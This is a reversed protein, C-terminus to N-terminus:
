ARPTAMTVTSWFRGSTPTATGPSCSIWATVSGPTAVAGFDLLTWPELFAYGLAGYSVPKRIGLSMFLFAAPGPTSSGRPGQLRYRREVAFGDDGSITVMVSARGLPPLLM